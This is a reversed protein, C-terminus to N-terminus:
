INKFVFIFSALLERKYSIFFRHFFLKPIKVIFNRDDNRDNRRDDERDDRRDNSCAGLFFSSTTKM